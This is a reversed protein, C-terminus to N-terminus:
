SLPWVTHLICSHTFCSLIVSIMDDDTAVVAVDVFFLSALVQLQKRWQLFIEDHKCSSFNSTSSIALQHFHNFTSVEWWSCKSCGSWTNICSHPICYELSHFIRWNGIKPSNSFKIFWLICCFKHLNSYPIFSFVSGLMYIRLMTNSRADICAQCKPLEPM